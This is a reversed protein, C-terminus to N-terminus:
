VPVEVRDLHDLRGDALVPRRRGLAAPQGQDGGSPVQGRVCRGGPRLRLGVADGPSEVAALRQVLLVSMVRNPRHVAVAFAVHNRATVVDVCWGGGGAGAPGGSGAASSRLGCYMASSTIPASTPM